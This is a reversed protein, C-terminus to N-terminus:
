NIINQSLHSKTDKYVCKYAPIKFILILKRRYVREISATAAYFRHISISISIQSYKLQIDSICNMHCSHRLYHEFLVVTLMLININNTIEM